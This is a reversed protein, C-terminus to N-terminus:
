CTCHGRGLGGGWFFLQLRLVEKGGKCTWQCCCGGEASHQFAALYLQGPFRQWKALCPLGGGTRKRYGFLVCAGSHRAYWSPRLERSRPCKSTVAVLINHADGEKGMWMM